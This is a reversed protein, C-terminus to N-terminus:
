HRDHWSDGWGRDPRDQHLARRIHNLRDDLDHREWRSLGDRRYLWEVRQYESLQWRLVRAERRSITGNYAARDIRESLRAQEGNLGGGHRYGPSHGYGSGYDGRYGGGYSQALTPTAIVVASAALLAFLANRKLATTM